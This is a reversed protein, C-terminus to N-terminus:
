IANKRFDSPTVGKIRYFFKSFSSTEAFNLHDAIQAVTLDSYQLLWKAEMMLMKNIYEVVTCGTIDKTIRSLYTTTISLRSAYFGINHQEIFHQYLLSIFDIFIEESRSSFQKNTVIQDQENILDLLFVSYLMKLNEDRFRHESKYYKILLRLLQIFHSFADQSLSIKPGSLKLMPFYAARILNRVIPTEFTFEADAMLCIGRYDDSASIVSISYGPMYTYLDGQHFTIISGDYLLTLSGECVITFSYCAITDQLRNAGYSTEAETEICIIMDNEYKSNIPFKVDRIAEFLKYM